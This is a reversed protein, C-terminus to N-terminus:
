DIAALTERAALVAADIDGQTHAASVFLVEFQSCPVYVGQEVLGWFFRAFRATDSGKAVNWDTVVAPNFFLTM